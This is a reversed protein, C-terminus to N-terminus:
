KTLGTTTSTYVVCMLFDVLYKGLSVFITSTVFPSDVAALVACAPKPTILAPSLVAALSPLASLLKDLGELKNLL